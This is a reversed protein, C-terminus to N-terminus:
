WLLGYPLADYYWTSYICYFLTGPLGDNGYFAHTTDDEILQRSPRGVNIM